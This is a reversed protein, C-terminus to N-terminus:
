TSSLCRTPTRRSTASSPFATLLGCGSACRGPGLWELDFWYINEMSTNLNMGSPGTGDLKDQWMARPIPADVPAGSTSTRVAVSLGALTQEFFVGNRTDFHGLRQRVGAKPAGLVGTMVALQSKGPQYRFYEFTQRACSDGLTGSGTSLRVSSENPLHTIAGAGVVTTDWFLAGVDYQSAYDFLNTPQSMRARAFADISVTNPEFSIQTHPFYTM